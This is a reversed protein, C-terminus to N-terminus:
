SERTAEIEGAQAIEARTDREYQRPDLKCSNFEVEYRHTPSVGTAPSNSTPTHEVFWAAYQQCWAERTEFAEAASPPQTDPRETRTQALAMPATAVLAAIIILGRM